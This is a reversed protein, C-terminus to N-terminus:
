KTFHETLSKRSGANKKFKHTFLHYDQHVLSIILLLAKRRLKLCKEGLHNIALGQKKEQGFPKGTLTNSFYVEYNNDMNDSKNNSLHQKIHSCIPHKNIKRLQFSYVLALHHGALLISQDDTNCVFRISYICTSTHKCKLYVFFPFM